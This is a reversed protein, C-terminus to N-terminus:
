WGLLLLVACALLLVSMRLYLAEPHIRNLARHVTVMATLFAGLSVFVVLTYRAVLAFSDSAFFFALTLGALMFLSSGLFILLGVWIAWKKPSAKYDEVARRLRGRSGSAM